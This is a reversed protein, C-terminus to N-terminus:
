APFVPKIGQNPLDGPYPFSLGSWYKQRPFGMSLAAQHACDMPNCLTLCPKAVLGGGGLTGPTCGPSYINGIRAAMTIAM